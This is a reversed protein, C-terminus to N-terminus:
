RTLVHFRLRVTIHLRSCLKSGLHQSISATPLWVMLPNTMLSSIGEWWARYTMPFSLSWQSTLQTPLTFNVKDTCIVLKDLWVEGLYKRVWNIKEQACHFSTLIPSTVIFVRLGEAEMEAIGALAGLMPPLNEFFGSSHTLLQVERKFEPNVCLEMYYSEERNIKSRGNWLKRFGADWDV